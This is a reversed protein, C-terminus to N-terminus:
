RFAEANNGSKGTCDSTCEKSATRRQSEAKRTKCKLALQKRTQRDAPRDTNRNQNLTGRITVFRYTILLKCFVKTISDCRKTESVKSVLYKQPSVTNLMETM